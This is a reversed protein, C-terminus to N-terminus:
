KAEAKGDLVSQYVRHYCRAAKDWVLDEEIRIRAKRKIENAYGADSLLRMIPPIWSETRLDPVLIGNVGNEIIEEPGATCSSIVPVGFYMAELIVMGYIEYSSPLVLIDALRYVMPMQSQLIRGGFVVRDELGILRVTNLLMGADPGDGIILLYLEPFGANMCSLIRILFDVNRRPELVGVYLLIQAKDPIGFRDLPCKVDALNEYASVDLGVPCRYVSDFGKRKMYAAASGTKALCAAVKKRLLPLIFIDYLHQFVSASRTTYDRYMGQCLLVPLDKRAGYIAILGAMILPYEHVQILAYLGKNLMRFVGPFFAQRGPLQMYPLGITRVSGLDSACAVQERPTSLGNSAMFIDTSIGYALLAKALGIEQVNYSTISVQYSSCRVIALRM